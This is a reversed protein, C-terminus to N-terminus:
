AHYLSLRVCVEPRHVEVGVIDAEDEVLGTVLDLVCAVLVQYEEFQEDRGLELLNREVLPQPGQRLLRRHRVGIQFLRIEIPKRGM